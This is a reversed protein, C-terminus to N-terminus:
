SNHWTKLYFWFSFLVCNFWNQSSQTHWSSSCCVSLNSSFIKFINDKLLFIAMEAFIFQWQKPYNKVKFEEIQQNFNITNLFMLAQCELSLFFYKEFFIQLFKTLQTHVNFTGTVINNLISFYHSQCFFYTFRIPSFFILNM